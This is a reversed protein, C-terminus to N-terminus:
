YIKIGQLNAWTPESYWIDAFERISTRERQMMDEAIPKRLLSKISAFAPSYKSALDLAVRRAQVMLNDEAVVDQVLGLSKAEEASYMAGSYLVQTANASGIWFRLM